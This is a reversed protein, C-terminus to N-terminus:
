QRIFASCTTGGDDSQFINFTDTGETVTCQVNLGATCPQAISVNCNGLASTNKYYTTAVAVETAYVGISAAFLAAIAFVVQIKKM